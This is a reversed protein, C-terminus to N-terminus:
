KVLDKSIIKEYLKFLYELREEDSEFPKSRYCCEVAADLNKHAERLDAPMKKPDYLEGITKDPHKERESLVNYVHITIADKQENTIDPFPFTNYCLTSSYRIDTKLRGAIAKVWTMHMRSSIVGFVYTEPNYIALASDLIVTKKDLFVFPIYERKESTVRPIIISCCDKHRVEGFRYPIKALDRTSKRNRKIRYSQVEKLKNAILQFNQAKDISCDDIWFCYRNIGHLFEKAGMAKKIFKKLGSQEKIIKKYEHEDLMLYGKDNAMSGITMPVVNSLPMVRSTVYPSRESRLFPSIYNVLKKSSSDYLYKNRNSKTRMGVIVCTVGANNKAFNRWIFSKYAFHIEVTQDLIYQWFLSVSSGQCISNTSVFAFTSNSSVIYKAAKYFWCCIYDLNNHGKLEKLAIRIDTKHEISQYRAGLYPPNGLVYIELDNSKPCIKEWDLRTANGCIIHGGDKLPLLPSSEGFIEQFIMNMQHEALWLSLRAVECAFEDIEIGYFQTLCLQSLFAPQEGNAELRKLVEMEFKRLEKYAIILFNGSGCAPDFIQINGLRSKLANLKKKNGRSEELKLYLDDLFLPRIVKMINSVSTYHIGLTSRHDSDVAGQMMSGFIEPNIKSWNQEGSDVIM